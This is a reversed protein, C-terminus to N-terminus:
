IDASISGILTRKPIEIVDEIPNHIPIKFHKHAKAPLYLNAVNALSCIESDAEFLLAQDQIKQNVKLLYQQYLPIFIVTNTYILEIQDSDEKVLNVPVNGRGSSGFGNIKRTTLGLESASAIKNHLEIKYPRDLNNQLMMIINEMYDADIIRGKLDIEKKALSSQSVVQVITSVPIKLVIKFDIKVLSHPVIIISSQKSYQLDFGADTDHARKPCIREENDHETKTDEIPDQFSMNETILVKEEESESLKTIPFLIKLPLNFMLDYEDCYQFHCPILCYDCLKTNLDALMQTMQSFIMQPTTPDIINPCGLTTRSKEYRKPCSVKPKSAQWEGSKTTMMHIVTWNISHENGPM